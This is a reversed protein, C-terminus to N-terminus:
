RLRIRPDFATYLVDTVLLGVVYIGATLFTLGSVIPVDRDSVSTVM